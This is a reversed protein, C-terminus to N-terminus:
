FTWCGDVGSPSMVAALGALLALVAAVLVLVSWATALAGGVRNRNAAATIGAVALVGGSFVTAILEVDILRVYGSPCAPRAALDALWALLATGAVVTAAFSVHHPRRIATM